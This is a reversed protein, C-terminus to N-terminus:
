LALQSVLPRQHVRVRSLSAFQRLGTSLGETVSCDPETLEFCRAVATPNQATTWDIGSRVIVRKM